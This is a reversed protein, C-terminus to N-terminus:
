IYVLAHIMMQRVIWEVTCKSSGLNTVEIEEKERKGGHEVKAREKELAWQFERSKKQESTITNKLIDLETAKRKLENRIFAM